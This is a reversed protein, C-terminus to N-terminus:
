DAERILVYIRGHQGRTPPDIVPMTPVVWEPTDDPVIGADVIGDEIPKLTAVLNLPDRRRQDRPAYHLEVIIRSLRPIGAAKALVCTADRIEKVRKAKVRWHERGNLSLPRTIPLEIRWM